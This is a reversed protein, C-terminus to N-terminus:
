KTPVAKPQRVPRKRLSKRVGGAKEYQLSDKGYNTGVGGLMRESLARLAKESTKFDDRNADATALSANYTDLKDQTAKIAAKYNALTLEESLKLAADITGMAAAREAAHTIVKSTLKRRSM